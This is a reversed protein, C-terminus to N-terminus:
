YAMGYYKVSTLPVIINNLFRHPIQLFAWNSGRGSKFLSELSSNQV